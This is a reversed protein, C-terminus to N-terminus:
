IPVTVVAYRVDLADLTVLTSGRKQWELCASTKMLLDVDACEAPPDCVIDQLLAHAEVGALSLCRSLFAVRETSTMGM